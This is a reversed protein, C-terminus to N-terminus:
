WGGEAVLGPASTELVLEGDQELCHHALLDDLYTPAQDVNGNPSRVFQTLSHLALQVRDHHGSAVRQRSRERKGDPSRVRGPLWGMTDPGCRAQAFPFSALAWHAYNDGLSRYKEMMVQLADRRSYVEDLRDAVYREALTEAASCHRFSVVRVKRIMVELGTWDPSTVSM